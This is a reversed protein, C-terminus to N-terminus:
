VAVSIQWAQLQQEPELKTLPRIQYESSPLIQLDDETSSNQCRITIYVNMFFYFLLLLTKTVFSKLVNHLYNAYTDWLTYLTVEM